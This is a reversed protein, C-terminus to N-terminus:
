AAPVSVTVPGAPASPVASNNITVAWYYWAGAAPPTDVYDSVQGAVGPVNMVFAASSFSSSTGRWVQTRFYDQPANIWDLAVTRGTLIGSFRTPKDPVDPNSLVTVTGASVWDTRGKWKIRITYTEGDDLVGSVARQRSAPMEVWDPDNSEVDEVFGPAYQAQFTLSDLGPDDVTVALSVAQVDQSITVYVQSIVPNQPPAVGNDPTAIAAYTPPLAREQTAPDWPYPNKLSQIGIRCSADELDFDHTKIEFIGDLGFEELARVRVTHVGDGKPFRAKMGVLNTRITGVFDRRDKARKIQMLRQLQTGSPCMEVDLRDTREEETQLAVEDRLEEVDVPQYGHAPSVFSGQLINYVKMPDYGDQMSIEFIDAGDIVVDPESWAGGVIGVKGEPTEYIEGDCTALMRATVEKLPDELSYYGCTRYRPEAGGSALPVSEACISAFRIWSDEDVRDGPINWGDRHTFFDRLCLASNESYIQNGNLDAVPSGRVEVQVVTQSGKPFHKAFDEDSPDGFRTFFTAQNQLRHAPTWYAALKPSIEEYDGGAGSGDRFWAYKYKAIRGRADITQPEGDIWFRILGDVRGHHVVVIQFLQDSAAEFFVKVGGLLMRGYGRIRPQDTQTVLAQVTQRSVKPRNLVASALSWTVAQGIAIGVTAATAALGTLGAFWASAGILSFVAM